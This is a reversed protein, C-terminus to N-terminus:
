VRHKEGEAGKATCETAKLDNLKSTKILIQQTSASEGRSMSSNVAHHRLGSWPLLAVRSTSKSSVTSKHDSTLFIFACSLKRNSCFFCVFFRCHLKETSSPNIQLLSIIACLHLQTLVSASVLPLQHLLLLRLITQPLSSCLHHLALEARVQGGSFIVPTSAPKPRYPITAGKPPSQFYLFLWPCPFPWKSFSTSNWASEWM